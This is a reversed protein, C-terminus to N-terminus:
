TRRVGAAFQNHQQNPCVVARDGRPERRGSQHGRDRLSARGDHRSPADAGPTLPLAGATSKARLGLPRRRGDGLATSLLRRRARPSLTRLAEGALQQLSADANGTADSAVLTPQKLAAAADEGAARLPMFGGALVTASHFGGPTTRLLPIAQAGTASLRLPVELLGSPQLQEFWAPEISQRCGGPRPRITM